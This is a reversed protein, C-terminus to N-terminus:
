AAVVVPPTSVVGPRDILELRDHTVAVVPRGPKLQGVKRCAAFAAALDGTEDRLVTHSQGPQAARKSTQSLRNSTIM